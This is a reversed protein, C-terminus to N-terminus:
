VCAYNWCRAFTSSPGVTSFPTMIDEVL